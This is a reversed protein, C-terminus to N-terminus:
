KHLDVFINYETMIEFLILKKEHAPKSIFNSIWRCIEPDSEPKAKKPTNM